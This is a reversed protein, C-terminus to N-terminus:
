SRNKKPLLISLKSGFPFLALERENFVGRRIVFLLYLFGGIFVGGLAQVVAIVRVSGIFLLATDTVYLFSKLFLAMILAAIIVTRLISLSVLPIKVMKKFKITILLCAIALTIVTAYAAGMTDFSPVFLCNLGYKIPFSLVVVVAPYLLNGLGQMIAIMPTIISTFLIVFSLVGLVASGLQNEFLMINTQNIITWLGVSAGTGIVISVIIALKIKDHLFVIDKKLRASTILPVLSLSMATAVVTGLQILPQGRDFIGKLSKALSAEYGNAVLLSYLNLADALPIIILLMGSICITLGQFILAKIIVGAELFYATMKGKSPIVVRWEKRIWLFMFLILASVIMGTISGVMAGGGVLYLSYGQQTLIYALSLITIARIFQEGVQSLATPVMDGIGQFYGRLISVIPFLLFVLSVVRLLVTLQVDNMFLAIKEAGFFLILFLILGLLQLFVYSVLLLRKIKEVDKKDKQEAFLKSIVVPFGTTALVTALGYFPYVQQYIYFGVDGVINQFPIRYVASLIKTLLAAIALIFAGKFLAKSQNVPKM